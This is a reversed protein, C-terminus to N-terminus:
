SNILKQLRNIKYKFANVKIGPVLMAVAMAYKSLRFPQVRRAILSQLIPSQRSLKSQKIEAIVIEPFRHTANEDIFEMALDLTVREETLNSALTIRKYNIWTRGQMDKLDVGHKDMLAQAEPSIAKDIESIRVRHKDTRNGKVKKKIEFFVDGTDVYKRQRLKVRNYRGNHHHMYLDYAENDFYLSVYDFLRKGEIELVAYHPAVETLIEDLLGLPFVYKSDVRNMLKVKDLGKLSTPQLAKLAASEEIELTTEPTQTM